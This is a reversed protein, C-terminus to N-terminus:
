PTQLTLVNPPGPVYTAEDVFSRMIFVGLGSEPLADLDPPRAGAPDFSAGTDTLVVRIWDSGQEIEMRITGPERGAYGHLAINNYAEGSCLCSSCRVFFCAFQAGWRGARDTQLYRVFHAAHHGPVSDGWASGAPRHHM